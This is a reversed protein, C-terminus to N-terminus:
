DSVGLGKSPLPALAGPGGTLGQPRLLHISPHFGTWTWGLVWAQPNPIYNSLPQEWPSHSALMPLPHAKTKPFPLLLNHLFLQPPATDKQQEWFAKWQLKLGQMRRRRGGGVGVGLEVRKTWSCKWEKRRQGEASRKEGEGPNGYSSKGKTASIGTLM